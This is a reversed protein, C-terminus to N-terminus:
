LAVAVAWVVAGATLEAHTTYGDIMRFRSRLGILKADIWEWARWIHPISEAMAALFGLALASRIAASWWPHGALLCVCLLGAFGVVAQFARYGINAGNARKWPWWAAAVDGWWRRWAAGLLLALISMM